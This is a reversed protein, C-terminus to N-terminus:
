EPRHLHLNARLWAQWDKYVARRDSELRRELFRALENMPLGDVVVSAEIATYVGDTLSFAELGDRRLRWFEPVGIAAYLDLKDMRSHSMDIEVVLDPPPSTNLDIKKLGGVKAANKIYYSSDPEAGVPKAELTTSGTNYINLDWEIVLIDLLADILTKYAEHDTHPSMLELTQGDYSLLAHSDEGIGAALAAYTEWSVRLHVVQETLGREIAISM